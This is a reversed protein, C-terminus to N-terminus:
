RGTARLYKQRQVQYSAFAETYRDNSQQFLRQADLLDSLSATGAKYFDLSLRLNEKASAISQKALDIQQYAELLTNWELNIQLILQESANLRENETLKIKLNERKVAHSGGWWGSIPISATAFVAGFSSNPGMFDHYVYSAGIGVSPLHKGLEMKKKLEAARINKDLLKYEDRMPLAQSPDVYIAAPKDPEAFPATAIDFSMMDVGVLQALAMKGISLGNNVKLKNSAVEQQQLEVRLQDNMPVIGAKVAVAVDSHVQNLLSEVASITVLKEKLAALQWYHQAVKEKVEKESLSLMLKQAEVGVKALRNGYFIQGGAFVPQVASVMATKGNELMAFPIPPVGPVPLSVTTEVISKNARFAFGAADVKPFFSTFAEQRTQQAGLLELQKGKLTRNNELALGQCQDLTYTQGFAPLATLGVALAIIHKTKM